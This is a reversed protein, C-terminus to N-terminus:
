RAEGGRLDHPVHVGEAGRVGSLLVDALAVVGDLYSGLRSVQQM